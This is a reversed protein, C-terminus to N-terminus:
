LEDRPQSQTKSLIQRFRSFVVAARSYPKQSEFDHQAARTCQEATQATISSM